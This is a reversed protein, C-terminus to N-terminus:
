HFEISLSSSNSSVGGYFNNYGGSPIPNQPMYPPYGGSSPPNSSSSAGPYPPYGGFNSTPYPPFNPCGPYPLYSSNAGGPQPMMAVIFYHVCEILMLDCRILKSCHKRQSPYPSISEKPKAYVPPMDGFTVIM